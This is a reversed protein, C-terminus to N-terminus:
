ARTFLDLFKEFTFAISNTLNLFFFFDYFNPLNKITLLNIVLYIMKKKCFTKM